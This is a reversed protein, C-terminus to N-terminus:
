LLESQSQHVGYLKIVETKLPGLVNEIIELQSLGPTSTQQLGERRRAVTRYVISEGNVSSLRVYPRREPANSANQTALHQELIDVDEAMSPNIMVPSSEEGEQVDGLLQQGVSMPVANAVVANSAKRARKAPPVRGRQASQQGIAHDCNLQRRRCYQCPESPDDVECRGKRQRCASCAPVKHSRYPRVGPHQLGETSSEMAPSLVLTASSCDREPCCPFLKGNSSNGARVVQRRSERLEVFCICHQSDSGPAKANNSELKCKEVMYNESTSLSSKPFLPLQTWICKYLAQPEGEYPGLNM